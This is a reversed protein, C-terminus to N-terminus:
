LTEEWSLFRSRALARNKLMRVCTLWTMLTVERAAKAFVTIYAVQLVFNVPRKATPWIV